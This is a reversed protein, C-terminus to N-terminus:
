TISSCLHPPDNPVVPFTSINSKKDNKYCKPNSHNNVRAKPKVLSIWQPLVKKDKTKYQHGKILKVWKINKNFRVIPM